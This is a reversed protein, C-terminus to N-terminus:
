EDPHQFWPGNDPVELLPFTQKFLEVAPAWDESDGDSSVKIADGFRAKLVLLAAAVILDYPKRATKTFSFWLNDQDPKQWEEPKMVRPVYFTEHDLERSADGNLSVLAKTLKPKGTGLPGCIAVPDASYYGGASSSHKPLNLLLCKVDEVWTEFTANHLTAPRRWYHTFGM